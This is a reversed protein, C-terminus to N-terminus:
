LVLDAATLTQVGPLRIMIEADLDADVSGRLTGIDTASNYSFRVQGAASLGASGVFVFRGNGVTAANADIASLNIRDTGHVFDLIRDTALETSDSTRAYRFVDAGAGGRLLDTGAGGDLTDLGGGGSLADAGSRGALFNAGGNGTIENNSRNGFGDIAVAGLLFLNEVNKPLEMAIRSHVTDDRGEAGLEVVEDDISDVYYDDDRMGGRMTDAGAGGFLDDRGDGTVIEDNGDFGYLSDGAGTGMLLDDGAFVLETLAHADLTHVLSLDFSIGTLTFGLWMSFGPDADIDFWFWTYATVTGHAATVAGSEGLDYTFTGEYVYEYGWSDWSHLDDPDGELFAIKSATLQADAGNLGGTLLDPIFWLTKNHEGDRSRGVYTAM